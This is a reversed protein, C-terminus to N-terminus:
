SSKSMRIGALYSKPTDGTMKKFYKYFTVKNGFGAQQAIAWHTYNQMQDQQVLELFHQVRYENILDAYNKELIRNIAKSTQVSNSEIESALQSLSYKSSRYAQKNLLHATIRDAIKKLEKAEGGNYTQTLFYFAAPNALALLTWWLTLVALSAFAMEYLWIHFGYGKYFSISVLFSILWIGLIGLLAYQGGILLRPFQPGKKKQILILAKILFGGNVVLITLCYIYFHLIYWPQITAKLVGIRDFKLLYLQFGFHYLIVLLLLIDSVKLRIKAEVSKRISFYWLPGIFYAASDVLYWIRPYAVYLEYTFILKAALVTSLFVVLGLFFLNLNKKQYNRFFLGATLFIGQILGTVLIIRYIDM